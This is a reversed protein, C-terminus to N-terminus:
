SRPGNMLDRLTTRATLVNSWFERPSHGTTTASEIIAPVDGFVQKLCAFFSDVVFTPGLNSLFRQNAEYLMGEFPSATIIEYSPFYDVIELNDAMTGAVTRLLSSSFTTATLVQKASATENLPVASVTLLFRAKNNLSCITEIVWGLDSSIEAPTYSKFSYNNSELEGAVTGPGMDYNCGTSSSVWGETAGLTFVFWDANQVVNRIARLVLDRSALLEEPTAFGDPEISPRFPDFFRGKAEWIEEPPTSISLAWSVWQKLVAATYICGTRASFIGYNYKKQIAPLFIDPWPEADFWTYGREKLACGLHQAFCSGFTAVKHSREFPHKPKWLDCIEVPRQDAIATRCFATAPAYLDPL